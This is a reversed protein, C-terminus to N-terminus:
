RHSLVRMMVRKRLSNTMTNNALEEDHSHGMEYAMASAAAKKSM